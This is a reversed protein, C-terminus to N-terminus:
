GGSGILIDEVLKGNSDEIVTRVSGDPFIFYEGINEKFTINAGDEVNQANKGFTEKITFILAKSQNMSKRNEKFNDFFNNKKNKYDILAIQNAFNIGMKAQLMEIQEKSRNGAIYDNIALAIATQDQKEIGAKAKETKSDRSTAFAAVDAASSGVTAGEKQSGEFFKLLYDSADSIRADKLKKKNNEGLLEKFLDARERVITAADLETKEEEEPPPPPPDDPQERTTIGLEAPGRPVSSTDFQKSAKLDATVDSKIAKALAETGAPAPFLSDQQKGEGIKSDLNTYVSEGAFKGEKDVTDGTAKGFLNEYSFDSDEKVVVNGDDDKTFISRYLAPSKISDAYNTIFKNYDDQTYLDGGLKLDGGNSLGVRGGDMLGSTIGTGRSDVPGGRFMPRRLIRSM